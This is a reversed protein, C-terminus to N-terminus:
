LPIQYIIHNLKKYFSMKFINNYNQSLINIHFVKQKCNWKILLDEKKYVWGWVM